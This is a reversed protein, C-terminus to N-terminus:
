IDRAALISKMDPVMAQEAKLCVNIIMLNKVSFYPEPRHHQKYRNLCNAKLIHRLLSM